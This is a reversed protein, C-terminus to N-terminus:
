SDSGAAFSSQEEGAIEFQAAMLRGREAPFAQVLSMALDRLTRAHPQSNDTGSTGVCKLANTALRFSHEAVQGKCLRWRQVVQPKELLPPWSTELELQRRLWLMAAELDVLMEGILQQHMPSGGLPKGTDAFKRQRLMAVTQRYISWAAGLYCAMAALQNGVFSGRSVQMCRTFANPLALAEAEPVFVDQLVLGHTASGRMGIANWRQRESVGEADREVIFTCLGGADSFGELKATVLYLDAVGTACGFSKIGNLLYGGDAPKAETGITIAARESKVSESAFNALWKRETGMAHLVKDAFARVAPAEEATFLNQEIAELALLGRSAASCHFFWALATSPCASGMAFAAAALDRLGGGLGGHSQPVVLGLLGADGFRRVHERQFEADRDVAAAADRLAPLVSEVIVALERERATMREVFREGVLEM